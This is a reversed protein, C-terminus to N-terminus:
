PADPHRRHLRGEGGDGEGTLPAQRHPPCGLGDPLEGRFGRTDDRQPLAEVPCGTSHPSLVPRPLAEIRSGGFPM